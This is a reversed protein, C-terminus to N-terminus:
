KNRSIENELEKIKEVAVALSVKMNLIESQYLEGKSELDKVSERLLAIEKEHQYIVSM